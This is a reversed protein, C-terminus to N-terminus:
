YGNRKARAKARERIGYQIMELPEMSEYDPEGSADGAVAVDARPVAKRRAAADQRKALTKKAPTESPKTTADVLALAVLESVRQIGEVNARLGEATIAKQTRAKVDPYADLRALQKQAADIFSQYNQAAPAAAGNMKFQDYVRAEDPHADRWEVYTAPDDRKLEDLQAAAQRIQQTRLEAQLRQQQEQAGREYGRQEAIRVAERQIDREANLVAEIVQPHKRAPITSISKPNDSVQQVLAALPDAEEGDEGEPLEEEIPAEGDDELAEEESNDEPAVEEEALEPYLGTLSEALGKNLWTDGADTEESPLATDSPVDADEIYTEEVQPM